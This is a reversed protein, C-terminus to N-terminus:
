ALPKAGTVAFLEGVLGLKRAECHAALLFFIRGSVFSSWSGMNRKVLHGSVLEYGEGGPLLLLSEPTHFVASTIM